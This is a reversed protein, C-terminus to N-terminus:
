CFILDHSFRKSNTTTLPDLCKRFSATVFSPDRNGRAALTEYGLIVLFLATDGATAIIGLLVFWRFITSLRSLVTRNAVPGRFARLPNVGPKLFAELAENQAVFTVRARGFLMASSVTAKEYSDAIVAILVNLLIVVGLSTLIM